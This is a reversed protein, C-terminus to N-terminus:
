PMSEFVKVMPTEPSLIILLATSHKSMNRPRRSIKGMSTRKAGSVHRLYTMAKGKLPLHRKRRILHSEIAAAAAVFKTPFPNMREARVAGRICGSSGEGQPPATLEASQPTACRM